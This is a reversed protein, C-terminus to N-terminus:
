PTRRGAPAALAAFRWALFQGPPVQSLVPPMDIRPAVPVCLPVVRCAIGEKKIRFNFPGMVYCGSSGAARANDPATKQHPKLEDAGAGEPM